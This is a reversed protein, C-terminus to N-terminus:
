VQTGIYHLTGNVGNMADSAEYQDNPPVFLDFATGLSMYYKRKCADFHIEICYDAGTAPDNMIEFAYTDGTMGLEGTFENWQILQLAGPSIVAFHNPGVIGDVFKDSLFYIQGDSKSLDVGKDNCCGIKTMNAYRRLIGSGIVFPQGVGRIDEYAELVSSMGLYDAGGNTILQANVAANSSNYFDGFNAALKTLLMKDMKVRLANLMSYFLRARYADMTLDPSCLKKFDAMDMVRPETWAELTIPVIQTMPETKVTAACVDPKATLVTTDSMPKIYNLEVQRLKGSPSTIPIQEFGQKNLDTELADLFGTKDRSIEGANEGITNILASQIKPCVVDVFAM